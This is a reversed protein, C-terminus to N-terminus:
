RGDAERTALLISAAHGQDGGPRSTASFKGAARRRGAAVVSSSKALVAALARRDDGREIVTEALL